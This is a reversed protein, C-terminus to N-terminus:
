MALIRETKRLDKRVARLSRGRKKTPLNFKITKIWDTKGMVKVKKMINKPHTLERYTYYISHYLYKLVKHVPQPYSSM